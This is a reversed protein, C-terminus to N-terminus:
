KRCTRPSRAREPVPGEPSALSWVPGGRHVGGEPLDGQPRRSVALSGVQFGSRPRIRRLGTHREAGSREARAEVPFAAEKGGASARQVPGSNKDKKRPRPVHLADALLEGRRQEATARNMQQTRHRQSRVRLVGEKSIRRALHHFIRERQAESLSKSSAVNFYVSVRTRVRNVNQGGPGSSTGM